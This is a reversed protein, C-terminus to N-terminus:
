HLTLVPLSRAPHCLSGATRHYCPVSPSLDLHDLTVRRILGQSLVFGCGDRTVGPSHPIGKHLRMSM